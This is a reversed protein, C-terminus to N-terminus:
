DFLEAPWIGYDSSDGPHSAFIFGEPLANNVCEFLEEWIWQEDDPDLVVNQGDLVAQLTKTDRAELRGRELLATYSDHAYYDCWQAVRPLVHHSLMTAHSITGLDTKMGNPLTLVPILNEQTM